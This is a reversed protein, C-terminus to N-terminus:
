VGLLDKTVNNFDDKEPTARIGEYVSQGSNVSNEISQLQRIYSSIILQGFNPHKILDSLKEFSLSTRADYRNFVIKFEASHEYKQFLDNLEKFTLELGAIAYDTPNVPMIVVDSALAAASVSAGISPPCDLIIIDYEHKVQNILNKFVKDLPHKGLLLTNDLLANDVRSPIFDLGDCVSVISEKLNLKESVVDIFVPLSTADIGFTRTLNSQQDLEILLVKAGLLSSRVAFNLSVITKGVGGKVLQTTYIKPHFSYNFLKRAGTHGFYLKNQKKKTEIHLGKLQKHIYQVSTDLIQAADSVLLKPDM